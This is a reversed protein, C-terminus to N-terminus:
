AEECYANKSGVLRSTYHTLQAAQKADRLIFTFFLGTVRQLLDKKLM